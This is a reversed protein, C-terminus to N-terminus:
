RGVAPATVPGAGVVMAWVDDVSGAGAAAGLAEEWVRISGFESRWTLAANTFKHLSHEETTGIAGLAQHTNRVVVSAARGVVSKAVAVRFVSDPGELGTEIAEYLAEDVASRALTAEAVADVILNQVSQFKALPRGFQHRTVVYEKALDAATELAAVTQLSRALAGRLQHVAFQADSLSGSEAQDLKAVDVRIGARPERGLAPHDVIEVSEAPVDSVAWGDEKAQVVVISSVERAWAVRHGRGDADVIAVTRPRDDVPLGAQELLWGALLDTEVYPVPVGKAAAGSLLAAAEGWGAGSGGSSEDGTLRALGLESLTGWISHHDEGSDAAQGFLSDVLDILEKDVTNDIISM